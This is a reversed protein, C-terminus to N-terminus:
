NGATTEIMHTEASAYEKNCYLCTRHKPYGEVKKPTDDQKVVEKAQGKKIGLGLMSAISVYGLFSRRNM